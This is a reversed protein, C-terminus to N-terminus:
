WRIEARLMGTWAAQEGLGWLRYYQDYGTKLSIRMNSGIAKGFILSLGRRYAGNLFQAYHGQAMFQMGKGSWATRVQWTNSQTSDVGPSTRTFTSTLGMSFGRGLTLDQQISLNQMAVTLTDSLSMASSTGMGHMSYQFARRQLRWSIGATMLNFRSNVRLLTDPHNNGQEYPSLSFSFNPLLKKKFRTQLSIGYGQNLNTVGELKGPNDHFRKYFGALQLRGSWLAGKLKLSHEEFRSRMFPNGLNRFGAGALQTLLEASIGKGLQQEMRIRYAKNNLGARRVSPSAAYVVQRVRSSEIRFGATAARLEVTTGSKLNGEAFVGLVHNYFADNGARAAPKAFDQILHGFFGTKLGMVDTSLKFAGAGRNFPIRNRDFQMIGVSQIAGAAIEAELRSFRYAVNLGRMSTGNLSYPHILVQASGVQLQTFGSMAKEARSSIAETALASGNTSYHSYTRKLQGLKATDAQYMSDLKSLQQQYISLKRQADGLYQHLQQTDLTLYRLKVSDMARQQWYDPHIPPMSLEGMAGVTDTIGSIEYRQQWQAQQAQLEAKRAALEDEAQKTRSQWESLQRKKGDISSRVQDAQNRAKGLAAQKQKEMNSRLADKDLYFRLFNCAYVSQPETSYFAEIGVPIGAMSLTQRTSLRLYAPQSLVRPNQFSTHFAELSARGSFNLGPIGSQHSDTSTRGARQGSVHAMASCGVALVCIYHRILNM